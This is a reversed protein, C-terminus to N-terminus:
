GATGAKRDGERAGAPAGFLMGILEADDGALSARLVYPEKGVRDPLHRYFDFNHIYDAAYARVASLLAQRAERLTAGTAGVDLERLWLTFGGEDEPIVDVHFRYRSLMREVAARSILVGEERRERRGRGGRVIVVPHGERVAEDFVPSLNRATTLSVERLV